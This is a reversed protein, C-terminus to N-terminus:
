SILDIYSSYDETDSHYIHTSDVENAYGSVKWLIGAGYVTTNEENLWLSKEVLSGKLTVNNIIGNANNTLSGFRIAYQASNQVIFRCNDIIVSAPRIFGPNNHCHYANGDATQYKFVCNTYKYTCGSGIGAALVAYLNLNYGEMLCNKIESTSDEESGWDQHVVNRTYEGILTLDELSSSRNLNITSFYRNSEQQSMRAAIICKEKGGVGVLRTYPPVTLGKNNAAIEANTFEARANYETGDGFFQVEYHKTPGSDTISELAARLSTFDKSGDTAVTIVHSEDVVQDSSVKINGNLMQTRPPWPRLIGPNDKYQIACSVRAYYINNTLNWYRVNGSQEGSVYNKNQDYFAYLWNSTPDIRYQHGPELEIYDTYAYANNVGIQGDTPSIYGGDTWTVFDMMNQTRYNSFVYDEYTMIEDLVQQFQGRVADGATPYTIGNGGARIDILEANGETPTGQVLINDIRQTNTEIQIRTALISQEAAEADEAHALADEAAGIAREAQEKAMQYYGTSRDADAKSEAASQAAESAARNVDGVKHMIKDLNLEQFNTYPFKDYFAM